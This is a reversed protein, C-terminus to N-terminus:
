RELTHPVYGTHAQLYSVRGNGRNGVGDDIAVLPHQSNSHFRVVGERQSVPYPCRSEDTDQIDVKTDAQRIVM